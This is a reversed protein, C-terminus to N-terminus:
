YGHSITSLQPMPEKVLHTYEADGGIKNWFDLGYNEEEPDQTKVGDAIGLFASDNTHWFRTCQLWTGAAVTESRTQTIIM